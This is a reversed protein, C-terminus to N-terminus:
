KNVVGNALCLEVDSAIREAGVVSPHFEDVASFNAPNAYYSADDGVDCIPGLSQMQQVVDEFAAHVLPLGISVANQYENSSPPVRSIDIPTLLLLRAAPAKARIGSVTTQLGADMAAVSETGDAIPLEDNVGIMVTILTAYASVKPLEFVPLRITGISPVGLDEFRINLAAAVDAPYSQTAPTTTGIGYTMSDGLAQYLPTPTPTPTPTPMPTPTPKPTPQPSILSSGGSCAALSFILEFSVWHLLKM